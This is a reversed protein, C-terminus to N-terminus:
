KKPIVGKAYLWMKKFIIPLLEWWELHRVKRLSIKEIELKLDKITGSAIDLKSQWKADNESIAQIKANEVANKSNDLDRKQDNLISITAQLEKIGWHKGLDLKTRPNSIPETPTGVPSEPKNIDQAIAIIRDVDLSGPCQTPRYESHKKIHKRDIPINYRRCIDAVLEGSAQHTSDTPKKRTGDALLWGGEHEIGISTQNAGYNGCHWATDEEKVYQHITKNNIGYHASAKRDPNAFTADASALTGVIWHLVVKDIKKGGRGTDFNGSNAGIWEVKM